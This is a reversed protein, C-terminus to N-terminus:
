RTRLRPDLADRLADGLLNISVVTVAIALGPALVLGIHSQFFPRAENIMTGWEAAPPQAGLGLFSLAALNLIVQGLNVTAVVLAPGVINPAIERWFVRRRTAGVALAAGVYASAREKLVLSRYVRAYWPTGALALALLLSHFSPGFTAVLALAVVLSPLALLTDLLRGILADIAGGLLAATAGVAMGLATTLVLVLAAGGLTDRGGAMLRALIDRGFQDTGLPHAASSGLLREDFRVTYANAHWFARGALATVIVAVLVVAALWGASM